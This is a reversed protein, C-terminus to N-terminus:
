PTCLSRILRTRSGSPAWRAASCRSASKPSRRTISSPHPSPRSVTGIARWAANMSENSGSASATSRARWDSGSSSEARWDDLCPALQQGLDVALRQELEGVRGGARDVRGDRAAQQDLFGDIVVVHALVVWSAGIQDVVERLSLPSDEVGLSHPSHVRREVLVERDREREPRAGAQALLRPLAVEDARERPAVLTIRIAADRDRVGLPGSTRSSNSRLAVPCSDSRM